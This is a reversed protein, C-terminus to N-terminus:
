RERQYQTGDQLFYVLSIAKASILSKNTENVVTGGFYFPLVFPVLTITSNIWFTKNEIAAIYKNLNFVLNPHCAYNRKACLEEYHFMRDEWKVTINRIAEDLSIMDAWVITRLVTGGDKASVFIRAFSSETIVRSPDFNNATDVSFLSEIIKKEKYGRGNQPTFLYEPDKEYELKQLGTFGLLSLFVPILIFHGPNTGIKYGLKFFKARMFEHFQSFYSCPFSVKAFPLIEM